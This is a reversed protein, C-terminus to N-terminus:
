SLPTEDRVVRGASDLRALHEALGGRARGQLRGSTVVTVARTRLLRHGALALADVLAQDEGHDTARFGGVDLYADARVALNAGYVHDHQHLGGGGLKAAVVREYAEAGEPGGHWGDLPALGVVAVAGTRDSEQLIDLVWGPGVDTDADTSLVWTRDPPGPLRALARRVAAARVEGVSTSTEDRHVAAGPRGRLVARAREATADRCRHAAVEVACADVMGHRQARDLAACVGRLARAVTAAEDRAPV